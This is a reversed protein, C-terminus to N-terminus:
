PLVTRHHIVILRPHSERGEFCQRSKRMAEGQPV